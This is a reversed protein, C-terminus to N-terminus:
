REIRARYGADAIARVMRAPTVRQRDYVVVARKTAASVTAERVGPLRELAVRVTIPCTACHMGDVHLRVRTAQARVPLPWLIATAQAGGMAVAVAVAVVLLANRSPTPTWM